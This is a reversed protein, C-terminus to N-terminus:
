AIGLRERLQDYRPDGRLPEFWPAVGLFMLGPDRDAFARDLQQFARDSDGLAIFLLSSLLALRHDAALKPELEWLIGSAEERDGALAAAYGLM